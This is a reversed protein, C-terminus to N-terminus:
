WVTVSDTATAVNNEGYKKVDDNGLAKKGTWVPTIWAMDCADGVM